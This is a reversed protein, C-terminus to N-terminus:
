LRHVDLKGNSNMKNDDDLNFNGDIQGYGGIILGEKGGLINEATNQANLIPLTLFSLAILIYSKLNM